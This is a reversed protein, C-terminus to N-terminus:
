APSASFNSAPAEDLGSSTPSAPFPATKRMKCGSTLECAHEM